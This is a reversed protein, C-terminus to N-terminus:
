YRRVCRVYGSNTKGDNVQWGNTFYQLWADTASSETSSWYNSAIFNGKGAVKMAYLVLNLEDVSPLYWDTYGNTAPYTMNECYRAADTDTYNTALKTTNGAGDTTSTATTDVGYATTGSNNAWKHMLNDTAGTCTPTFATYNNTYDSCHGPTIMYKYTGLGAFGTGAYLVGNPCADGVAVGECPDASAVPVAALGAKGIHANRIVATPAAYSLAAWGLLLSFIAALFNFRM